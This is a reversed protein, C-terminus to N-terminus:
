LQHMVGAVEGRRTAELLVPLLYTMESGSSVKEEEEEQPPPPLPPPPLLLLLPPPPSPPSEQGRETTREAVGPAWGRSKFLYQCSFIDLTLFLPYLTLYILPSFFFLSPPPPPLNVAQTLTTWCHSTSRDFTQRCQM